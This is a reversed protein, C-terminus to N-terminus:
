RDPEVAAVIPSSRLRRLAVADVDLALLPFTWTMGTTVTARSGRLDALLLARANSIASKSAALAPAGTGPEGRLSPLNLTVIVRVHGEAQAQELLVSWSSAPTTRPIGARGPDALTEVRM